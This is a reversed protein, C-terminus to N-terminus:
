LCLICLLAILYTLQIAVISVNLSLLKILMFWHDIAHMPVFAEGINDYFMSFVYHSQTQFQKYSYYCVEITSCLWFMCSKKSM